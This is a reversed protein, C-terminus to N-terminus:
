MYARMCVGCAACRTLLARAQEDLEDEKLLGAEVKEKVIRDCTTQLVTRQEESHWHIM